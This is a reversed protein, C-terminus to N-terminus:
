VILLPTAAEKEVTVMVATIPDTMEFTVNIKLPMGPIVNV